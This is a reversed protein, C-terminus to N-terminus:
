LRSALLAVVQDRQLSPGDTSAVDYQNEWFFNETYVANAYYAINWAAAVNVVAAVNAAVALTVCAGKGSGDDPKRRPLGHPAVVRAFLGRSEDLAREIRVPDGSQLAAGFRGFFAPDARRMGVVISSKAAEFEEHQAPTWAPNEMSRGSWLEPVAQAVAGEGFVLGRFLTEGDVVKATRVSPEVIAGGRGDACAAFAATLAAAVLGKSLLALSRGVM